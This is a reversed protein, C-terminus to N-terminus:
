KFNFPLCAKLAVLLKESKAESKQLTQLAAHPAQPFETKLRAAEAAIPYPNSKGLGLREALVAAKLAIWQLTLSDAGEDLAHNFAEAAIIDKGAFHAVLRAVPPYAAMHTDQKAKSTPKMTCIPKKCPHPKSRIPSLCAYYPKIPLATTRAAQFRLQLLPPLKNEALAYTQLWGLIEDLAQPRYDKENLRQRVTQLYSQWIEHKNSRTQGLAAHSRTFATNPNAPCPASQM